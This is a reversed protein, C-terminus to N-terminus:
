SRSRAFISPHPSVLRDNGNVVPDLERNLGSASLDRWRIRVDSLIRRTQQRDRRNIIRTNMTKDVFDNM